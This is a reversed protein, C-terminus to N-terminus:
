PGSLTAFLFCEFNVFASLESSLFQIVTLTLDLVHTNGLFYKDHIPRPRLSHWSTDFLQFRAAGHLHNRRCLNPFLQSTFSQFNRSCLLLLVLLLLLLLLLPFTSKDGSPSSRELTKVPPTPVIFSCVTPTGTLLLATNGTSNYM